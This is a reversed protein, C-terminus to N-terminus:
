KASEDCFEGLVDYEKAQTIKVKVFSGPALEQASTVYVDGDISPMERYTHGIYMGIDWDFEDVLVREVSGLRNMNKVYSIEQQAAMVEAAREKKIEEPIQDPYSAAKTGEEQSYEFVGIHDFFGERVFSVLRQHQLKSEGPFGSILSTRLAFKPDAKKLRELLRRISGETTQRGMRKLITDDIHQLPLDLYPLINSHACMVEILDDQIREPYAYLVRVWPIPLSSIEDLLQPFCFKGYLDKGYFSTDQAIIVLEQIGQQILEHCEKLIEEKARSQYPGRIKPIACYTCGTSCGEAIRLFAQHQLGIRLRGYNKQQLKTFCVPHEGEFIKSVITLIEGYQHVGIMGDVEPLEELLQERYREALCGTVLIYRLSGQQKLAAGELIAQISEEKASDIFGCTNIILLEAHEIDDVLDYGAFNLAALMQETDIQNKNCGLSVVGIRHNM